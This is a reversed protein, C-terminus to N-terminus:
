QLRFARVYSKGHTDSNTVAYLYAGSTAMDAVSDDTGGRMYRDAQLGGGQWRFEMVGSQWPRFLVHGTGHVTLGEHFTVTSDSAPHAPDTLRYVDLTEPFITIEFLRDDQWALPRPFEYLQSSIAPRSPTAIDIATLFSPSSIYLYAGRRVMRVPPSGEERGPRAPRMRDLILSAVERKSSLDYTLLSCVRARTVGVYLFQGAPVPTATYDGPRLPGLSITDALGASTVMAIAVEDVPLDRKQGVLFITGNEIAAKPINWDDSTNWLPIEVNAVQRPRSADSFEFISVGRERTVAALKGSAVIGAVGSKDATQLEVWGVPTQVPLRNAMVGASAMAMGMALAALVALGHNGFYRESSRRLLRASLAAVLIAGFSYSLGTTALLKSNRAAEILGGSGDFFPLWYVFGSFPALEAMRIALVAVTIAIAGALAAAKVSRDALVSFLLALAYLFWFRPVLALILQWVTAQERIVTLGTDSTFQPAAYGLAVMSAVLPALVATGAVFKSWVIADAAIPRVLLFDLTRGYRERAVQGAGLGIAVAAAVLPMLATMWMSVFTGQFVNTLLLLELSGALAAGGFLWARLDYMEKWLLPKM